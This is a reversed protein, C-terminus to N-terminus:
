GTNVERIALEEATADGPKKAEVIREVESGTGRIIRGYTGPDDMETTMVTAAAGAERHAALLETLIEASVLPHDGSLVLITDAARVVDVAARIAGGTGDVEPQTITEVGEPLAASVDNDPSVIVCVPDAGAERAARIPWAVMPRGCVEHLVKPVASRMRKGHGAAMILATPANVRFAYLSRARPRPYTRDRTKACRRAGSSWSPVARRWTM